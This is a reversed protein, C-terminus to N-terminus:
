TCADFVILVKLLFLSPIHKVYGMMTKYVKIM